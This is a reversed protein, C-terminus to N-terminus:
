GIAQAGALGDMGTPAPQGVRDDGLRDAALAKRRDREIALMAKPVDVGDDGGNRSDALAACCGNHAYRDAIKGGDAAHEIEAGFADDRRHDVRRGVCAFEGGRRFERRDALAAPARVAGGCEASKGILRDIQALGIIVDDRQRHDLGASGQAIEVCDDVRRANVAYKEARGIQRDRQRVASDDVRHRGVDIALDIADDTGSFLRPLNWAGVAMVGLAGHLKGLAAESEEGDHAIEGEQAGAGSGREFRDLASPRSQGRSDRGPLMRILTRDRWVYHHVLAAAAHVGALILLAHALYEHARLVNRAVPRDATWPSVAQWVGLIPLPDGRKLQVVIGALPVALLLAYMAYHNLKAARQLLRGFPMPEMPPPANFTRLVLRAIVLVFIFQGLTMHVFLDVSRPAGKPLADHFTGLAWALIVAIFTLWHLTLPVTGYRTTSNAFQM